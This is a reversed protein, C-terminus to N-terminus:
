YEDAQRDQTATAITTAGNGKGKFPNSWLLKGSLDCAHLEGGLTIFVQQDEILILPAQGSGSLNAQHEIKGTLGDIVFFTGNEVVLYILGGHVCMQRRGVIIPCTWVINGSTKEIASVEAAIAIFILSSLPSDM